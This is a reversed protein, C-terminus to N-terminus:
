VWGIRHRPWYRGVVRWRVLGVPLPGISRSDAASAGRHDGLLFLEAGLRWEGDPHTRGHAWPEMLPVGDVSMSGGSIVLHDDPLGVVRKVLEFGPRHPHTVIAVDGRLWESVTRIAIVYDGPELVPAMSRDAIAYRRLRM